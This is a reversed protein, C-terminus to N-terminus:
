EPKDAFRKLIWGSITDLAAPSFTEEISYYEDPGGSGATQFLHNLGPLELVTYDPNGAKSLAQRIQPLNQEPDVQLDLEGGLALVPIRTEELLPRPDYRLFFRFWPSTVVPVQTAAAQDLQEATLNAGMQAEVLRRVVAEVEADTTEGKVMDLVERQALLVKELREDEM